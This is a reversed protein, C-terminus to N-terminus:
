ASAAPTSRPSSRASTACGATTTRIPRSCEKRRFFHARSTVGTTTAVPKTTRSVGLESLHDLATKIQPENPLHTGPETWGLYLGRQRVGSNAAITFDRVQMEYIVVDTPSKVEPGASVPPPLATLRSRTSSAVSNTTYPDLTEHRADIGPGQVLYAYFKGRLDGKVQTEWVGKAPGALPQVVRGKGGTAEDYLVVSVASATPAFLRFTTAEPAITAGLVADADAFLEPDDLIARPVIAVAGGFGEVQV